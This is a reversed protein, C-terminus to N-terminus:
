CLLSRSAAFEIQTKHATNKERFAYLSYYKGNLGCEGMKKLWLDYSPKPLIKAKIKRSVIKNRERVLQM